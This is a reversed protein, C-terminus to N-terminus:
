LSYSWYLKVLCVMLQVESWVLQCMKKFLCSVLVTYSNEHYAINIWLTIKQWPPIAFKIQFQPELRIFYMYYKYFGSYFSLSSQFVFVYENDKRKEEKWREKLFKTINGIIKNILESGDLGYLCLSHRNPKLGVEPCWSAHSLCFEAGVRM